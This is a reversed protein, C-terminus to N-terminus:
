ELEEYSLFTKKLRVRDLCHIERCVKPTIAGKLWEEKSIVPWRVAEDRMKTHKNRKPCAM